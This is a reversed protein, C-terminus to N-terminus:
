ASRTQTPTPHIHFQNFLSLEAPAQALSLKAYRGKKAASPDKNTICLGIKPSIFIKKFRQLAEEYNLLKVIILISLM